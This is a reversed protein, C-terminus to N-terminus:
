ACRFRPQVRLPGSELEFVRWHVRECRDRACLLSSESEGTRGVTSATAVTMTDFSYPREFRGM